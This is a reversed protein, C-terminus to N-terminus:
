CWWMGDGSSWISMCLWKQLHWKQGGRCTALTGVREANSFLGLGINVGSGLGVRLQSCRYLLFIVCMSCEFASSLSQGEMRHVYSSEFRKRWFM